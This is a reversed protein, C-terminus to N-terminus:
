NAITLPTKIVRKITQRNRVESKGVGKGAKSPFVNVIRYSVLKNLLKNSQVLHVNKALNLIDM